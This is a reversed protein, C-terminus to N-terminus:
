GTLSLPTKLLFYFSASWLCWTFAFNSLFWKLSKTLYIIVLSSLPSPWLVRPGARGWGGRGASQGRSPGGQSGEESKGLQAQGPSACM